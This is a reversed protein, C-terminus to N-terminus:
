KPQLEAWILICQSYPLYFIFLFIYFINEESYQLISFTLLACNAYWVCTSCTSSSQNEKKGKHQRVGTATFVENEQTKTQKSRSWQIKYRRRGVRFLQMIERNIHRSAAEYASMHSNGVFVGVFMCGEPKRNQAMSNPCIMRQVWNQRLGPSKPVSHSNPEFSPFISFYGFYVSLFFYFFLFLMMMM